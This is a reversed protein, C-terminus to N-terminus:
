SEPDLESESDSYLEVPRSQNLNAELPPLDDEGDSSSDVELETTAQQEHAKPNDAVETRFIVPWDSSKELTRIQDHFLVQSVMCAIKSGSKLAEDRGSEDVVVFSGRKIWFSRQFKAPFLALSKVGKADMVEIVNSGRLSLVQVVSHGEHLSVADDESGKRLNKRGGKM